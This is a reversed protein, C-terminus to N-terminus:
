KVASSACVETHQGVLDAVYLVKRKAIFVVRVSAPALVLPGRSSPSFFLSLARHDNGEGGELGGAQGHQGQRHLWLEDPDRRHIPADDEDTPTTLVFVAGCCRNRTLPCQAHKCRHIYKQLVVALDGRRRSLGGPSSM